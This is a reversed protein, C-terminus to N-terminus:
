DDVSGEGPAEELLRVDDIRFRFEGKGAGTFIIGLIGSGDIGGLEAFPIVHRKWDDGTAFSHTAPRRGLAEAFVMVRHTGGDGRARFSLAEFASLNAPERPEDGPQFMAGAVAIPADGALTGRIELAGFSGDVGGEVVSMSAESSGGFMRDTFVTWGAGFAATPGGDAAEEFDSILGSESGAPAPREQRAEAVRRRFAERDARRGAKWVAVIGRTDTVDETPDGEVLLLDARAGQEVRGRDELGFTEAPAATAAALAEEPTLGAAVLLELDRHLSPGHATGPNPADTGALVLVGAEHLHSVVELARDFTEAAPDRGMLEAYSQGLDRATGPLLYPELRADATLSDGGGRGAISELVSLTPIAAVGRDAMRRVLEEDPVSDMWTHALVDTDAELAVRAGELTTVHTVALLDRRHAEEAVRDITTPSLTPLSAGFASGDEHIIKIYDAGKEAQTEVWSAADGPGELTPIGEMGYREGSAHGNPATAAWGAAFLDARDIAEGARQEERLRAMTDPDSAMDLETTVGFVLAQRLVGDPDRTAPFTHVHADILGPLLTRGAGPVMEAGEPVAVDPGVAAIRGDRVVVTVGNRVERGDFLRVDRVAFTATDASTMMAERTGVDADAAPTTVLLPLALLLAQGAFIRSRDDSVFERTM